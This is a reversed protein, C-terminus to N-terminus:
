SECCMNRNKAKWEDSAQIYLYFRKIRADHISDIWAKSFDAEDFGAWGSMYWDLNRWFVEGKKTKELVWINANLAFIMDTERNGFNEKMFSKLDRIIQEYDAGNDEKWDVVDFLLEAIKTRRKHLQSQKQNRFKIIPM